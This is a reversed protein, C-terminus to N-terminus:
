AVSVKVFSTGVSIMSSSLLFAYSIISWWDDDNYLLKTLDVPKDKLDSTEGPGNAIYLIATQIFLQMIGETVPEIMALVRSKEMYEKWNGEIKGYM